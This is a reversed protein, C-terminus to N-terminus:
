FNVNVPETDGTFTPGGAGAITSLARWVSLNITNPAMRVSGDALLVNVGSPHYSRAAFYGYNIHEILVSPYISNPEHFASYTTMHFRGILWTTCRNPVWTTTDVHGAVDAATKDSQVVADSYSSHMVYLRGHRKEAMIESVTPGSINSEGGEGVICESMAMTNTTGDTIAEVGYNSELHFLGGSNKTPVKATALAMATTMDSGSCMVYNLPSLRSDAGGYESAPAYDSAILGRFQESPCLMMSVQTQAVPLLNPNLYATYGTPGGYVHPAVKFDILNHVQTQESFPLLRSQISYASTSSAGPGPFCDMVAHYNHLAIGFQKLNNTCSMRRAAERAAQVAPLLLAILVGIIAIVVLLEVLTFGYHGGGGIKVNIKPFLRSKGLFNNSFRFLM